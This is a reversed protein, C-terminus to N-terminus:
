EAARGGIRHLAAEVEAGCGAFRERAREPLGRLAAAQPARRLRDGRYQRLPFARVGHEAGTGHRGRGVRRGADRSRRAGDGDGQARWPRLLARLRPHIAAARDELRRVPEGDPMRDPHDRRYRHRLWAGAARDGGRGRRRPNRGRLSAHWGLRAAHLLRTRAFLGRRRAGAGAAACRAGGSLRAARADSRWARWRAAGDPEILGEQGLIETVRPMATAEEPRSAPAAPRRRSGAWRALLRAASAYLRLDPRAGARGASGQLDGLHPPPDADCRHRGARAAAFRPLTTRYARLLFAAEILDGQAQKIALAAFSATM